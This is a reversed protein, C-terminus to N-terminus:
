LACDVNATCNNHGIALQLLFAHERYRMAVVAYTAYAADHLSLTYSPTEGDRRGVFQCSLSSSLRAPMAWEAGFSEGVARGLVIIVGLSLALGVVSWFGFPDRFYVANAQPVDANRWFAQILGCRDGGYGRWDVDIRSACSSGSFYPAIHSSEHHDSVAFLWPLLAYPVM